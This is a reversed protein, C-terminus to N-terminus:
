NNRKKEDQYANYTHKLLAFSEFSSDLGLRWDFKSKDYQETEFNIAASVSLDDDHEFLRDTQQGSFDETDEIDDDSFLLSVRKDIKPLSVKARIKPRYEVGLDDRWGVINVLRLFDYSASELVEPEGFLKADATAFRLFVDIEVEVSIRAHLLEHVVDPLFGPLVAKHFGFKAPAEIQWLDIVSVPLAPLISFATRDVCRHLTRGGIDDLARHDGDM